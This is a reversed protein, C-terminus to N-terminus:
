ILDFSSPHTEPKLTEIFYKEAESYTIETGEDNLLDYGCLCFIQPMDRKLVAVTHSHGDIAPYHPIHNDQLLKFAEQKTIIENTAHCMFQVDVLDSYKVNKKM